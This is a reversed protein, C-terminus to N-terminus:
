HIRANMWDIDLDYEPKQDFKTIYRIWGPGDTVPVIHMQRFGWTTKSWCTEIMEKFHDFDLHAPQDITAHNHFRVLEDHELVPIVRLGKGHRHAATGFVKRNLRNMFHRFNKTAVYRDLDQQKIRQKLTLTVAIPRQWAISNLYDRLSHQLKQNHSYQAM